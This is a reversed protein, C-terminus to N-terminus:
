ESDPEHSGDSVEETLEIEPQPIDDLAPAAALEPHAQYYGVTGPIEAAEKDKPQVEAVKDRALGTLGMEKLSDKLEAYLNAAIKVCPNVITVTYEIGARSHRVEQVMVGRTEVDLCAKQWQLHTRVLLGIAPGDGPTLTRRRALQKVIEKWLSRCEEPLYAPFKPRGARGIQGRPNARSPRNVDSPRMRLDADELSLAPKSM